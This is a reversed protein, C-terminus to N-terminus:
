CVVLWVVLVCDVCVYDRFLLGLAQGYAGSEKEGDEELEIFLRAAYAQLAEVAGGGDAGDGAM